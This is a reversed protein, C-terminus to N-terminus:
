ALDKAFLEALKKYYNCADEPAQLLRPSTINMESIYGGIVDFGVIPMGMAALERAVDKVRKEEEATPKYPHLTAGMRTNALFEGSAPKKLCWAIIEGFATFARIEGEYIGEDFAQVLRASKGNETMTQLLTKAAAEDATNKVTVREVGRGGFLHLPKVIGDGAANEKIFRIIDDVNSSFLAPKVQKPFHFLLLKENWSRLAEPSNYVRTTKPASSLMWTITIYDLDYPPDKRMHVARFFGLKKVTTEEVKPQEPGGEFSLRSARCAASGHQSHWFLDKTECIWIQHDAVDTLAFMMRLSSDLALNLSALPDIIFLHNVTQKASM